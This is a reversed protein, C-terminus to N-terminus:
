MPWSRKLFRRMRLSYYFPWCSGQFHWVEEMTSQFALSVNSVKEDFVQAQASHLLFAVLLGPFAVSWGDDTMLQFAQSVSVVKEEFVQAHAFLLLFTPFLM